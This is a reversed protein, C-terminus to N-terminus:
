WLRSKVDWKAKEKQPKSKPLLTAREFRKEHEKM